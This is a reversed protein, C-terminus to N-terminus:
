KPCCEKICFNDYWWKEAPNAGNDVSLNVGDINTILANFNAIDAATPITAGGVLVWDGYANSPLSSGFALSFPVNITKPPAGDVILNPIKLVFIARRTFTFTSFNGQYITLSNTATTGNSLGGVYEVDYSLECGAQILNKPFDVTNFANSGGSGDELFLKKSGSHNQVGIATLAQPQWNGASGISQTEFDTVLNCSPTCPQQTDYECEKKSCSVAIAILIIIYKKM